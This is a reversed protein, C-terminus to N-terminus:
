CVEWFDEDFIFDGVMLMFDFKFEIVGLCCLFVCLWVIVEEFFFFKIVYDDGGVIFGVICGSVVDKVIFFVM